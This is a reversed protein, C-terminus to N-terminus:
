PEAPRHSSFWDVAFDVLARQSMVRTTAKAAHGVREGGSSAFAVGVDDFDDTDTELEQYTVWRRVEDVLMPAGQTVWRKGVWEARCEALHLSTNNVHDVGLLVVQADLEYLRALPSQEGLGDDLAHDATIFEAHRGVALHSVGPHVSRRVGPLRHFTEAIAGMARVPTLQADFAPMHDRLTPWWARPVPPNQWSSPDSWDASHGPMTLTGQPGIVDLLAQVVAQAGGVVYGLSSLSSHVVLVDGPAIGLARLDEAISTRTAPWDTSEIVTRESM